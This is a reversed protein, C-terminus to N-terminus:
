DMVSPMARSSSAWTHWVLLDVWRLRLRLRLWAAPLLLESGLARLTASLQAWVSLVVCWLVFCAALCLGWAALHSSDGLLSAALSLWRTLPLLTLFCLHQAHIPTRSNRQQQMKDYAAAAIFPIYWVTAFSCCKRKSGIHRDCRLLRM